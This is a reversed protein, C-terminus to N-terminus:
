KDAPDKISSGTVSAKSSFLDRILASKERELQAIRSNKAYIDDRLQQFHDLSTKPVEVPKPSGQELSIQDSQQLHLKEEQVATIRRFYWKRAKEMVALGTKLTQLEEEVQSSRTKKDIVNVPPVIKSGGRLGESGRGTEKGIFYVKSTSTTKINTLNSNSTNVPAIDLHEKSSSKPKLDRWKDILETEKSVDRIRFSDESSDSTWETDKQVDVRRTSTTAFTNTKTNSSRIALKLGGCLGEFSLLGNSPTVKRLSELVGSFSSGKADWYSEIDTIKVFGCKDHDLIDFLSRLYNVFETPLDKSMEAEGIQRPANPISESQELSEQSAVSSPSPLDKESSKMVQLCEIILKSSDIANVVDGDCRPYIICKSMKMNTTPTELIAQCRRTRFSQCHCSTEILEGLYSGWSGKADEVVHVMMMMMMMMALVIAIVITEAYKRLTEFDDQSLFQNYLVGETFKMRSREMEWLRIQDSITAPITPTKKLMEPHARTRLFHLIQHCSERTLSAVCLNPFRCLIECFLGVLAIQLSSDTYAYVRYNTEVVIYGEEGQNLVSSREASSSALNVALKTPYYRRSKRKRQYVLGIERLHQLMKLQCDSLGDTPYDKAPSSFSLQFLFSLCEVPDMSWSEVTDLYQLLFYWVQSSRDMLLFQFGAPSILPSAGPTECKMLSSLLLIKIVDQSVGGTSSSNDYSGTMFHLVTEWRETAYKDLFDPERNHKDQELPTTYKVWPSGGGCLAAKLNNRFTPNMECRNPGGIMSERWIRLAKLKKLSGIHHNHFETKVWSTVLSEPIPQDTFLTRLVYNKALEPLERFVTLCTAPHNYLRDLTSSPLSCLYDHLDRLQLHDFYSSSGWQPVAAM